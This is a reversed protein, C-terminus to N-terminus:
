EEIFEHDLIIWVRGDADPTNIPTKRTNRRRSLDPSILALMTLAGLLLTSMIVQEM